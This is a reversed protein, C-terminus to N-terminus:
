TSSIGPVFSKVRLFVSWALRFSLVTMKIEFLLAISSMPLFFAVGNFFSAMNDLIGEPITFDLGPLADLLTFVVKFCFGIITILIKLM